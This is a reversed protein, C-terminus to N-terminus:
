RGAAGEASGPPNVPKYNSGSFNWFPQERARVIPQDSLTLNWVSGKPVCVVMLDGRYGLSM